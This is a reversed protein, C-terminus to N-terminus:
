DVTAAFESSGSESNVAHPYVISVNDDRAFRPDAKRLHWAFLLNSVGNLGRLAEKKSNDRLGSPNSGGDPDNQRFEVAIANL